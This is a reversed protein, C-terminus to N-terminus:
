RGFHYEFFNRAWETPSKAIRQANKYREKRITEYLMENVIELKEDFRYDSESYVASRRDYRRKASRLFRANKRDQLHAHKELLINNKLYNLILLKDEVSRNSLFKKTKKRLKRLREKGETISPVLYYKKKLSIM